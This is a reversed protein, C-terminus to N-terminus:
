QRELDIAKELRAIQGAAQAKEDANQREKADAKRNGVYLNVAGVILILLILSLVAYRRRHSEHAKWDKLLTFLGLGATSLLILFNLIPSGAM